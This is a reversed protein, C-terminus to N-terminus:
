AVKSLLEDLEAIFDEVLKTYDKEAEIRIIHIKKEKMRPDFSVFDCWKRGTVWMQFQMQEIYEPKITGNIVTDLHVVTTYPCKIEILGDAGVFGDPSAGCRKLEDKFCLGAEVAVNFTAAEYADRAMSEHDNGWEIARSTAFPSEGTMVEAVLDMLYSQRTAAWGNGGRGAKFAKYACSGTLVGLREKLWEDTGQAHQSEIM